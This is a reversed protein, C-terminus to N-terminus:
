LLPLLVYVYRSTNKCFYLSKSTTNLTVEPNGKSFSLLAASDNVCADSQMIKQEEEMRKEEANILALNDAAVPGFDNDDMRFGELSQKTFDDFKEDLTRTRNSQSNGGISTSRGSLAGKFFSADLSVDSGSPPDIAIRPAEGLVNSLDFDQTRASSEDNMTSGLLFDLPQTFDDSTLSKKASAPRLYREDLGGTKTAPLPKKFLPGERTIEWDCVNKEDEFPTQNLASDSLIGLSSKRLWQQM